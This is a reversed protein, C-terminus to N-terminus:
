PSNRKLFIFFVILFAEPAMRALWRAIIAIPAIAARLKISKAIGRMGLVVMAAPIGVMEKIEGEEFALGPPVNSM